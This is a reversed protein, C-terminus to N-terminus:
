RGSDLRFTRVYRHSNQVCQNRFRCTLNRYIRTGHGRVPNKGNLRTHPDGPKGSYDAGVRDEKWPVRCQIIGNADLRYLGNVRGHLHKYLAAVGCYDDADKSDCKDICSSEAVAKKLDANEQKISRVEDGTANRLIARTIM